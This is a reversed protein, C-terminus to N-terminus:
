ESTVAPTLHKAMCNNHKSLDPYNASAPFMNHAPSSWNRASVKKEKDLQFLAGCSLGTGLMAVAALRGRSLRPIRSFVGAMKIEFRNIPFVAMVQNQNNNINLM